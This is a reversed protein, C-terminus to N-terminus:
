ERGLALHDPYYFLQDDPALYGLTARGRPCLVFARGRSIRQWLECHWEPRDWAGHTAVLLPRSRGPSTPAPVAVVAAGYGPVDLEMLYPPTRQSLKASELREECAEHATSPRVPGRGEVALLAVGIALGRLIRLLM